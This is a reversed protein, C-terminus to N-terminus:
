GARGGLVERRALEVVGVDPEGPWCELRARLLGRPVVLGLDGFVAELLGVVLGGVREGLEVEHLEQVRAAEELERARDAFVGVAVSANRAEGAAGELLLGEALEMSQASLARAREADARLGVVGGVRGVGGGERGARAVWGRVTSEAVGLEGAVVGVGVVGARRVALARVEGSVRGGRGGGVGARRAAEARAKRVPMGAM